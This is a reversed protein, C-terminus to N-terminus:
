FASQAQPLGLDGFIGCAYVSGHSDREHRLQYRQAQLGLMDLWSGRPADERELLFESPVDAGLLDFAGSLLFSKLLDFFKFEGSSNM